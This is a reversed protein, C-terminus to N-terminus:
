GELRDSLVFKGDPAITVIVFKADTLTGQETFSISGSATSFDKLNHLAADVKDMDTSGAQKIGEAMVKVANYSQLAYPGPDTGFKDKYAASWAGGDQLMDPTMTFTGYVNDTFGKGTIEAFKADVAGDGILFIGKYGAAKAQHNVLSGAQYYGTYYVFDTGAKMMKDVDTSFDKDTPTVTTSGSVNLGAEKAQSIFAKSLNTSYADGEDIVYISKAASKEAFKVAAQAQQTGTGNVLFVNPQKAAVLDDSNAAAIVMPIKAQLFIPLTPLTAGSCYGGVSAIVGQSVLKNAGAVATTADCAEDEAILEIQQGNVGGAANIEDVALTAGNKMYEGFASESGSFPALMGFKLAGGTDSNGGGAVGGSCGATLAMCAAAVVITGVRKFSGFRKEM